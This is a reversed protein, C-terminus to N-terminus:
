GEGGAREYAQIAIEVDKFGMRGWAYQEWVSKAHEAARLKAAIAEGVVVGDEMYELNEVCAEIMRKINM